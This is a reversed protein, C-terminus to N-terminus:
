AGFDTRKRVGPPLKRNVRPKYGQGAPVTKGSSRKGSLRKGSTGTISEYSELAAKYDVKERVKIIDIADGSEGCAHCNWVGKGLNLSASPKRDEHVPCCIM